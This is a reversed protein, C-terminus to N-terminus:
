PALGVSQLLREFRPDTRVNDFRPSVRLYGLWPDRNQRARELWELAEDNEGLSAHVIAVAVPEAHEGNLYGDTLDKLIEAAEARRSAM